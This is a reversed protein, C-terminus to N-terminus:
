STGKEGGYSKPSRWVGLGDGRFHGDPRRVELDANSRYDRIPSSKGNYVLGDSCVLVEAGKEYIALINDCLGQLHSLALEEGLDPLPGLVLDESNEKFPFGPLLMRVPAGDAVQKAVVPLFEHFADWKGPGRESHVGYSSIITLVKAATAEHTRNATGDVSYNERLDDKLGEPASSGSNALCETTNIVPKVSVKVSQAAQLPIQPQGIVLVSDM